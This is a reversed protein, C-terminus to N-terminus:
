FSSFFKLLTAVFAEALGLLARSSSAGKYFHPRAKVLYQICAKWPTIVKCLAAEKPQACNESLSVARFWQCGNEIAPLILSNTKLLFDPHRMMVDVIFGWEHRRSVLAIYYSLRMIVTLETQRLGYLNMHLQQYIFISVINKPTLEWTSPM